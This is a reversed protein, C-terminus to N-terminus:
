RRETTGNKLIYDRLENKTNEITILNQENNTCYITYTTFNKPLFEKNYEIKTFSYCYDKEETDLIHKIDNINEENIDLIYYTNKSLERLTINSFHILLFLSIIFVILIALICMIINKIRIEEQSIENDSFEYVRKM